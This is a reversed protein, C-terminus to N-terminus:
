LKIKLKEALLLEAQKGISRREKKSMEVVAQYVREDLNHILISRKVPEDQAPTSKAKKIM